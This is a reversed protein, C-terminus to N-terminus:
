NVKYENALKRHHTNEWRRETQSPYIIWVKALGELQKLNYLRTTLVDSKSVIQITLINRSGPNSDWYSRRESKSKNKKKADEFQRYPLSHKTKATVIKTGYKVNPICLRPDRVLEIKMWREVKWRRISSWWGFRLGTMRICYHSILVCWVGYLWMMRRCM